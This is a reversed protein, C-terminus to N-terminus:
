DVYSSLLGYRLSPSNAVQAIGQLNGRHISSPVQGRLHSTQREIDCLRNSSTSEEAGRSLAHARRLPLDDLVRDAKHM